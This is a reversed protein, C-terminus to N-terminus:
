GLQTDNHTLALVLSWDLVRLSPDGRLTSSIIMELINCNPSSINSADALSLLTRGLSDEKQLAKLTGMVARTPQLLFLDAKVLDVKPILVHSILLGLSYLDSSIIDEGRVHRQQGIELQPANWPRTGEPVREQGQIVCSGFDVVRCCIEGKQDEELLINDPKIDGHGVGARLNTLPVVGCIGHSLSTCVAAICCRL